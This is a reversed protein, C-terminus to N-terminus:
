WEAVDVVNAIPSGKYALQGSADTLDDLVTKNAHTHAKAVADDIAAVSSEPRGQIADWTLTLDLSEYESVKHWTTNAFDYVYLASGNTVTSDATADLVLVLTTRTLALADRDAITPVVQMDSFGDIATSIKQDIEANTPLHRVNSADTGTFYLQAEAAASGQVIYMTSATLENQAPLALVRAIRIQTM